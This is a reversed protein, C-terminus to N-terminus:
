LGDFYDGGEPEGGATGGSGSGEAGAESGEELQVEDARVETKKNSVKKKVAKKAAKKKKGPPASKVVPAAPGVAPRAAQKELENLRQELKPVDNATQLLDELFPSRQKLARGDTVIVSQCAPCPFTEAM